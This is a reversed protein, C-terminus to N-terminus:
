GEIVLRGMPAGSVWRLGGVTACERCAGRWAAHEAHCAQCRWVPDPQADAARRLAVRGDGHEAEDIEALLLWLRRQNFGTQQAAEAQHRAEGTLGAELATRALLLRSEPHEPNASALRQAARARDLPATVVQLACTALDPHPAVTWAHRLIAQARREKGTTRLIAAYEVVAPALAPDDKWAQKALKAAQGPDTEAMAAAAGLAARTAGPAALALAAAWNGGRIALRSREPRFWNAGPHTQEAQGALAAAEKWDERAVALRFLGRYGLLAGDPRNALARYAAETEDDRDALRGAEAALLLTQPTDGLLKRTRHAERRAAGHDGAALAVLTHTVAVDGARRRRDAQWRGTLWPLHLLAALIRLTAYGVVFLLLLLVLVIPTGAEVTTDGWAATVHGPLEAILWAASVAVASALLSSLIRRM